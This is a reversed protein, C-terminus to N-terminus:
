NFKKRQKQIYHNIQSEYFEEHFFGLESDM